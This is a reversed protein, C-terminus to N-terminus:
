EMGERDSIVDTIAQETNAIKQEIEEKQKKLEALEQRLDEEKKHLNAVKVITESRELYDELHTSMFELEKLSDGASLHAIKWIYYKMFDTDNESALKEEIERSKEFKAARLDSNTKGDYYKDQIYEAFADNTITNTATQLSDELEEFEKASDCYSFDTNDIIQMIGNLYKREALSTDSERTDYPQDYISFERINEAAKSISRFPNSATQAEKKIRTKENENEYVM